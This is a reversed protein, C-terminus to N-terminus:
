ASIVHSDHVSYRGYWTPLELREALHSHAAMRDVMAKGELVVTM